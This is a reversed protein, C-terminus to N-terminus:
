VIVKSQVWDWYSTIRTYVGPRGKEACRIGILLLFKMLTRSFPGRNLLAINGWSVVGVVVWRGSITKYMLPGGSDGQFKFNSYM